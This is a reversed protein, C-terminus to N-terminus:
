TAITSIARAARDCVWHVLPMSSQNQYNQLSEKWTTAIIYKQGRTIRDGSIWNHDWSGILEVLNTDIVARLEDQTFHTNITGQNDIIMSHPQDSNMNVYIFCGEEDLVKLIDYIKKESIDIRPSESADIKTM